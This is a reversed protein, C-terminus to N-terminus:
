KNQKRREDKLEEELRKKEKVLKSNKVFLVICVVVSLVLLVNLLQNIM